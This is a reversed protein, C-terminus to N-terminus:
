PLGAEHGDAIEWAALEAKSPWSPAIHNLLLSRTRLGHGRECAYVGPESRRARESAIFSWKPNWVRCNEDLTFVWSRPVANALVPAGYHGVGAGLALLLIITRTKM